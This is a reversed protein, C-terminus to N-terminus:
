RRISNFIDFGENIKYDCHACWGAAEQYEHKNKKHPKVNYKWNSEHDCKCKFIMKNQWSGTTIVIESWM